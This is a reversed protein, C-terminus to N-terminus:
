KENENIIIIFKTTRTDNDIYIYIYYAPHLFAEPIKARLKLSM